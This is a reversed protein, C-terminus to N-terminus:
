LMYLYRTRFESMSRLGLIHLNGVHVRELHELAARYCEVAQRLPTYPLDAMQYKPHFALLSYPISPDLGAIFEAIAAVESPDVYGPVLLTTATLVPMGEREPYYEEAVMEFNRFARENPVGSLAISLEQTSCKLDFKVNGGSVLSLEAAQRVLSPDGCGNWEFCIRLPADGRAELAMKSASLAYPLQPEPSGGFYCVCSIRSDKEVRDAIAGVPQPELDGFNKHSSNQCFLCDFNCGYFFVALNCYGREPGGRYAYMPYGAGTGAPCFWASCCNSVHPDIYSYLLGRSRDVLSRLGGDNSRLGCYGKEGRGIMCHNSCLRCPIGGETKPPTGPLGHQGRARAHAAKVYHEADGWRGRICDLCVGLAGSVPTSTDGCVECPRGEGM